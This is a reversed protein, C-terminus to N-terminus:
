TLCLFTVIGNTQSLSCRPISKSLTESSLPGLWTIGWTVHSPGKGGDEYQGLLHLHHYGLNTSIKYLSFDGMINLHFFNEFYNPFKHIGRNGLASCVNRECIGSVVIRIM